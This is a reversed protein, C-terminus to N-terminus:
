LFKDYKRQMFINANKYLWNKFRTIQKNGGYILTYINDKKDKHRKSFKVDNFKLEKMLINKLEILFEITGVFSISMQTKSYTICGDGDFYGRIFHHTLTKNLFNPFTLKFTKKQICGLKELDLSIKKNEIDFAYCDQWNPNKKSREYFRLPKNTKLEEKFKDLIDKDKKQLILRVTNNTVGNYGDAYLLGLFYAKKESDICEFYKDDINYKKAHTFNDKRIEINNKKLINLISHHDKGQYGFLKNLNTVTEGKLYLEIVKEKEKKTIPLKKIM